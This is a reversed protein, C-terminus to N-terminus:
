LFSILNLHKRGHSLVKNIEDQFNTEAEISAIPITCIKCIVINKEIFFWSSSRAISFLKDLEESSFKEM